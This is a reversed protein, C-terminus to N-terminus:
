AIPPGCRDQYLDAFPSFCISLMWWPLIPGPLKPLPWEPPPWPGRWGSPPRRPARRRDDAREGGWDRNQRAQGEQHRERTSPRAGSRHESGGSPGGSGAGGGGRRGRRPPDGKVVMEGGDYGEEGLPSFMDSGAMMTSGFGGIYGRDIDTPGDREEEKVREGTVVIEGAMLGLPDTFNVPDGDVYAYLNMGDRYGIPDTQMFRGRTPDYMRAKYYWLGHEPLWVQGTYGFRGLNNSMPRGYEDYENLQYLAGNPSGDASIAVISGREDAHLYRRNNGQDYWILPEDMGPGHVYRHVLTTNSYEEVLALGDYAFKFGWATRALRLLPDYQLANGVGTQSTLLNESSYAFTNIGDSTLNGRADHTFGSTAIQNRGNHTDTRSGNALGAYSFLDNSRTNGVIQSAPNHTFGLTVDGASGNMNQALQSLRSVADYSYSQTAGNGYTLSSRRGLADYGFTALTTSGNELMGSMEGTVLYDYTVYFSDPYTLRTRRGAADFQATMTGNPGVQTLNRGLADFTFSLAHGSQSAGTLRGLLDYSYSVDPESGPLDKATVRNLNDYSFAINQGDRLERNTVNGNADLTLIEDDTTSSTGAGQTTDPFRTRVLRDHGDYEYTTRNGEGDTVHHVRGNDTYATAVENAQAATGYASQVLTVQGADDRTTRVIRDPGFSGETDLTCADSPLSAFEAPNMRQAVCEVRGLADHSMQTLAYTTGGNVLRQVVPRANANYVTEVKEAASFSTWDGDSQSVVTGREQATPLGNTYTTRTARHTLAGGGDPDPGIVGVVRRGADYRIRTTDASGSLPGDVTEVDGVATYTATTVASISGTGDRRQVSNVRGQGDHGIVTRSEDATGVCGPAVGSACTSVGTLRYEGGSLTYAYRTEPRDGSGSPAPATVTLVGGHTADYTYDTTNGRADTVSNPSNCTVPNACSTDYDATVVVDALGSGPKAVNRTETVNGRADYTYQTYDGEDRTVRTPRSDGDYQFATVRGLPDTVSTPRGITMDSVITTQESLADTVVMTATTGVITRSYNTTVGENTVSISGGGGSSIAFTDSGAGPRRISMNTGGGTMRWTLGGMDTIDTVIASVPSYSVSGVTPSVLNTNLLTAGTREYWDAPPPQNATPSSNVFSFEAAYGASNSIRRLRYYHQHDQPFTSGTALTHLDWEFDVTRGDPTTMSLPLLDCSQTGAMTDQCFNSDGYDPGFPSGFLIETGDAATLVYQGGSGTLTSGDENDPTLATTTGTYRQWTRAGTIVANVVSGVGSRQLMIQDISLHNRTGARVRELRLADRGSGLVAEVLSMVADGHTLDIGNGDLNRFAPQATPQALAPQTCMATSTLLACSLAGARLLNTTM